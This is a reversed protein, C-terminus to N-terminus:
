HELELTQDKFNIRVSRFRGLIDEGLIGDIHMGTRRNVDQMDLVGVIHDSLIVDGFAISIRRLSARSRGAQQEINLSQLELTGRAVDPTVLTMGAGTDLLLRALKGNIRVDTFIKAGDIKLSVVATQAPLLRPHLLLGFIVFLMRARWVVRSNGTRERTSSVHGQQATADVLLPRPESHVHFFVRRQSRQSQMGTSVM